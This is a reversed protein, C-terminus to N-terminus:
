GSKERNQIVGPRTSGKAAQRRGPIERGGIQRINRGNRVEMGAINVISQLDFMFM